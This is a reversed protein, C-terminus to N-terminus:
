DGYRRDCSQVRRKRRGLKRHCVVYQVLWAALAEAMDGGLLPGM